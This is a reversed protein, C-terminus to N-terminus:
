PQSDTSGDGRGPARKNGSPGEIATAVLRGMTRMPHVIYYLWAWARPLPLSARDEVTPAFAATLYAKAYLWAYPLKDRWRERVAIFFRTEEVLGIEVGEAAFMWGEVHGALQKLTRMENEDIAQRVPEPLEAALLASALWLGLYVMREVGLARARQLAQPWDVDHSNRLLEAVDAIWALRQWLHSCGHVCLVLVRDEASLIGIRRGVFTMTGLRASLSDFDLSFSRPLQWHAFLRGRVEVYARKGEHLFIREDGSENPSPVSVYGCSQLLAAMRDLDRPHVLLDLDLFERLAVDGYLQQALVAGKLPVAVIGAAECQALVRVLEGTLRLNRLANATYRSQMQRMVDQPVLTPAAATFSRFVLPNVRHRMVLEDLRAWDVGEQALERIREAQRETLTSRSCWLLLAAEPSLRSLSSAPTSAPQNM